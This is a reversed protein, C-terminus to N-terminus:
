KKRRTDRIQKILKVLMPKTYDRALTLQQIADNLWFADFVEGTLFWHGDDESLLYCLFHDKGNDPQNVVRVGFQAGRFEQLVDQSQYEDDLLDSLHRQAKLLETHRDIKRAM